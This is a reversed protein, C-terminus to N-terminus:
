VDAEAAVDDTVFEALRDRYADADVHFLVESPRYELDFVRVIDNVSDVYDNFGPQDDFMPKRLVVAIGYQRHARYLFNVM